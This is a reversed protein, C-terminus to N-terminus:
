LLSDYDIKDNSRIVRQKKPILKPKKFLLILIFVTPILILIIIIICSENTLPNVSLFENEQLFSVEETNPSILPINALYGNYVYGKIGLYDVYYWTEGNYDMIAEGYIKGIYNLESNAPIPVLVTGSVSPSSRLNCKNSFTTLKINPYPNKPTEAVVKISAKLIYGNTGCYNVLYCKDDFDSIIEVFYTADVQCIINESDQKSPSKYLASTELTRAYETYSYYTKLMPLTQLLLLTLVFFCIYIKYKRFEKM